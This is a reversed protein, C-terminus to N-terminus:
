SAPVAGIQQTLYLIVCRLFHLRWIDYLEFHQSPFAEKPKMHRKVLQNRLLVGGCRELLSHAKTNLQERSSESHCVVYLSYFAHRIVDDYCCPTPSPSPPPPQRLM